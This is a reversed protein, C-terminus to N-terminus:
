AYDNIIQMYIMIAMLRQQQMAFAAIIGGLVNAQPTIEL